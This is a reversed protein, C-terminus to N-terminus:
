LQEMMCDLEERNGYWFEPENVDLNFRISDLTHCVTVDFHKRWWLDNM